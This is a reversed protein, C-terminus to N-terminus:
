KKNSDAKLALHFEHFVRHMVPALTIGMILIFFLGSFLAYLGAFLKGANTTLPGFPGMGSLIMSANAFSDIWTMKEFVHYGWMGIFLAIVILFIGFLINKTLHLIFTSFSPLPGHYKTRMNYERLHIKLANYM